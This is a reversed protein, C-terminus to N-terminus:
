LYGESNINNKSVLSTCYAMHLVSSKLFDDPIIANKRTYLGGLMKIDRPYIKLTDKKNKWAELVMECCYYKDNDSEFEFDYGSGILTKAINCAYIVDENTIFHNYFRLIAIADCRTFTLIDEEFIGEAMAHIVKGDGAYFGVHSFFGPILYGDLYGTYTRLIIDGKSIEHLINRVEPGTVKYSGPDYVVFMPYKFLKIDGLVKLVKKSITAFISM